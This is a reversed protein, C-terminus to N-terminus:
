ELDFIKFISVIRSYKYLTIIPRESIVLQTLMQCEQIGTVDKWPTRVWSHWSSSWSWTLALFGTCTLRFLCVIRISSCRHMSANYSYNRAHKIMYFMFLVCGTGSSDYSVKKNILKWSHEATEAEVQTPGKDTTEEQYYHGKNVGIEVM